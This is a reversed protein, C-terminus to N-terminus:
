KKMGEIVIKMESVLKDLARELDSLGKEAMAMEGNKGLKELYYAAEYADKAAFNGVAGKLSHAERELMDSNNAAIAKRIKEIHGPCNEILMDAIKQFIAESDMVTEMASSLDFATPLYSGSAQVPQTGQQVEDNTMKVGIETMVRVGWL